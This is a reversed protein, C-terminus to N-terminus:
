ATLEAEIFLMSQKKDVLDYSPRYGPLVDSGNFCTYALGHLIADKRAVLHHIDGHNQGVAAVVIHVTRFHRELDGPGHREFLGAALRLGYKKLRHHANLRDHGLFVHAIDEAIEIRPAAMRQPHLRAGSRLDNAALHRQRLHETVGRIQSAARLAPSAERHVERM